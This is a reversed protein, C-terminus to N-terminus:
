KGAMKILALYLLAELTNRKKFFSLKKKIQFRPFLFM